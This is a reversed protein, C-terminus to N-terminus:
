SKRDMGSTNENLMGFQNAIPGIIYGVMFVCDWISLFIFNDQSDFYVLFIDSM